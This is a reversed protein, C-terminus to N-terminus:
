ARALVIDFRGQRYEATDGRVAELAIILSPRIFPDTDQHADGSFYLQTILEACGAARVRLHIHRPRWRDPATQYPGPLITEIAYAGHEDTVLRARNIFATPPHALDDNDYRGHQDAHWIDILAGPLEARDTARVQGAILLVTGGACPPCVKARHPAGARWYPGLINRETPPLAPGPEPPPAAAIQWPLADDTAPTPRLLPLALAALSSRALLGRRTLHM